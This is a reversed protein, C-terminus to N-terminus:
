SIITEGPKPRTKNRISDQDKQLAVLVRKKQDPTLELDDALKPDYALRQLAAFNSGMQQTEQQEKAKELAEQSCAVSNQLLMGIGVGAVIVKSLLLIRLSMRVGEATQSM